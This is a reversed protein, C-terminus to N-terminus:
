AGKLIVEAVLEPDDWTPVHGCGPLTLQRVSDPLLPRSRVLRDFEAWAITLPVEVDSLDGVTSARMERNSEAYGRAGGYGRVLAVADDFPVREPHHVNTALARERLGDIRLLLPALPRALRAARYAHNPRPGLPKTWFGAPCLCVAARVARRRACEIAVWSGLSIGAIGPASSLGLGDVFAIVAEALNGPTSAVGDPLPPSSGFGPMEVAIVEREAALRDLVPNWQANMGGLSHLLLLPEGGGRRRLHSLQM